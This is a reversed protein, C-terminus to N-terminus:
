RLTSVRDDEICRKVIASAATKCVLDTTEHVARGVDTVHTDNSMTRGESKRLLLSPSM